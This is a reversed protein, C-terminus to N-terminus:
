AVDPPAARRPPRAAARELGPAEAGPLVVEDAAVGDVHITVRQPLAACRTRRRVLSVTSGPHLRALMGMRELLAADIPLSSRHPEPETPLM